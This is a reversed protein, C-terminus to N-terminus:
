MIDTVGGEREELVESKPVETEQDITPCLHPSFLLSM